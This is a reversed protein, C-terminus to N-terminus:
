LYVINDTGGVTAILSGTQKNLSGVGQKYVKVHEDGVCGAHPQDMVNVVANGEPDILPM